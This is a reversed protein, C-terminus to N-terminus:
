YQQYKNLKIFFPSFTFSSILNQPFVFLLYLKGCPELVPDPICTILFPYFSRKWTPWGVTNHWSSTALHLNYMKIISCGHLDSSWSWWHDSKTMVQNGKPLPFCSCLTTLSTHSNLQKCKAWYMEIFGCPM